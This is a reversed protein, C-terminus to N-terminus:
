QSSTGITAEIQDIIQRDKDPSVEPLHRDIASTVGPLLYARNAAYWAHAYSNGMAHKVAGWVLFDRDGKFIEMNALYAARVGALISSQMHGDLAVLQRKTLDEPNYIAVSLAESLTDNTTEILTQQAFTTMESGLEVRTLQQNQRIETWLLMLGLLVGVNAGVSLWRSVIEGNM